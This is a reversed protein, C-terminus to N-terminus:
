RPRGARCGSGDECAGWAGGNCRRRQRHRLPGSSGAAGGERRASDGLFCGSAWSGTSPGAASCSSPGESRASIGRSGAAGTAEAIVVAVRAISPRRHLNIWTAGVAPRSLCATFHTPTTPSHTLPPPAGRASISMVAIDM